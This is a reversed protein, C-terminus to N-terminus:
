RQGFIAQAGVLVFVISTFGVAEAIWRRMGSESHDFVGGLTKMIDPLKRSVWLVLAVIALWAIESRQLFALLSAHM